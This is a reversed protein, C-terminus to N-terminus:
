KKSIDVIYRANSLMKQRIVANEPDLLKAVDKIFDDHYVLKPKLFDGYEEFFMQAIKEYVPIRNGHIKKGIYKTLSRFVRYIIQIYYSLLEARKLDQESFTDSSLIHYPPGAEHKINYKERHNWFASGPLASYRFCVLNDAKLESVVFELTKKFGEYTDAPLGYIIQALIPSGAVSRLKSINELHRDKNFPRNAAKLAVPNASQLGIMYNDVCLKKLGQLMRDSLHEPNFEFSVKIMSWGKKRRKENLENMVSFIKLTRDKGLLFNSDTLMLMELGQIDFLGQLEPIVKDLPYDRVGKTKSQSVSWVCYNCQFACGRSTEYYVIKEGEVARTDFLYHQNELEFVLDTVETEIVERNKRYVLNPIGSFDPNKDQIESIVKELPIEGEGKIILDVDPNKEIIDRGSFCPVPGGWIILCGPTKQKLIGAVESATELNWVYVSFGFIRHKQSLLRGAIDVPNDECFFSDVCTKLHPKMAMLYSKLVLVSLSIGSSWKPVISAFTIM